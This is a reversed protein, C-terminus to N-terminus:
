ASDFARHIGVAPYPLGVPLGPPGHRKMLPLEACGMTSSPQFDTPSNSSVARGLISLSRQTGHTRSASTRSTLPPSASYRLWQIRSDPSASSRGDSGSVTQTPSLAPLMTIVGRIPSSKTPHFGGVPPSSVSPITSKEM